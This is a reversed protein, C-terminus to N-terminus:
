SKLRSFTLIQQKAYKKSFIQKRRFISLCCPNIMNSTIIILKSFIVCSALGGKGQVSMGTMLYLFEEFDIEGNGDRDLEELIDTIEDITLNCDLDKMSNFLEEADISGGGDKDVMDFVQRFAAIQMATLEQHPDFQEIGSIFASYRSRRGGVSSPLM